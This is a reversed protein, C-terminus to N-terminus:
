YKEVHMGDHMISLTYGFEILMNVVIPPAEKIVIGGVVINNNLWGISLEIPACGKDKAEVLLDLCKKTDEIKM